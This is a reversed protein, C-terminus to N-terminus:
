VWKRWRRIRCYWTLAYSVLFVALAPWIIWPSVMLCGNLLVVYALASVRVAWRELTSREVTGRRQERNLM